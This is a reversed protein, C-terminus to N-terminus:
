FGHTGNVLQYSCPTGLPALLIPPPSAPRSSELFMPPLDFAITDSARRIKVEWSFAFGDDASWIPSDTRIVRVIEADVSDGSVHIKVLDFAAASGSILLFILLAIGATLQFILDIHHRQYM